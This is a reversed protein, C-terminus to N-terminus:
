ESFDRKSRETDRLQRQPPLSHLSLSLSITEANVWNTTILLCPGPARRVAAVFSLGAPSYSSFQRQVCETQSLDSWCSRGKLDVNWDWHLPCAWREGWLHTEWSNNRPNARSERGWFLLWPGHWHLGVIAGLGQQLGPEWPVWLGEEESTCSETIPM